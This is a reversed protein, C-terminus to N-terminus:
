PWKICNGLSGCTTTTRDIWGKFTWFPLGATPHPHLWSKSYPRKAFCHLCHHILFSWARRHKSSLSNWAFRLPRKKANLVRCALSSNVFSLKQRSRDRCERREQERQAYNSHAFWRKPLG